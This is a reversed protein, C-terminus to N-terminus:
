KFVGKKNIDINKEKMLSTVISYYDYKCLIVFSSENILENKWFAFNYYKLGKNFTEQSNEDDSKLFNNLFYNAIDNHHCKVSEHFLQKYKKHVKVHNDELLHIIEPNTGHIALYWLSEELEVGEIRLFNFIQIAGFFVAYEILKIGHNYNKNLFSNTEYISSQITSNLSTGNRNIYVVFEKIMDNRIFECILSENEGKRRLKFFDDPLEKKIDEIWENEEEEEEFKKRKDTEYIHYCKESIFPKIEPLFYQPYKAKVYKRTTTIKKTIYEDVIIIQEEILFLLIRKNSKFINFLESNSFYKLLDEKFLKLIQEIKDFFGEERHHDNSIHLILHMLSKIQILLFNAGQM